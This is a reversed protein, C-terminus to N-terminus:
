PVRRLPLLCRRQRARVTFLTADATPSATYRRALDLISLFSEVQLALRPAHGTGAGVRYWTVCEHVYVATKPPLLLAFEFPANSKNLGQRKNNAM